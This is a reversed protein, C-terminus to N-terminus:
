LDTWSFKQGLLEELRKNHTKYFSRLAEVVEDSIPPHERGKTDPLCQRRPKQRCFFNKEDDFYLSDKDFYKPLRLFREVQQLFPLPNKQFVEGDIVLFQDNQMHSGM